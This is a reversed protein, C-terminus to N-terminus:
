RSTEETYLKAVAAVDDDGFGKGSAAQLQELAAAGVPTDLAWTQAADIALGVDKAALDIGFRAKWDRELMWPLRVDSQFSVAGTDALAETFLDAPIGAQQALALGEALVAVNSMGIFNSVLKFTTAGEVDDFLYTKEGIRDLVGSLESIATDDGGVFLPIQGNEAHIPTKGLSCAVFRLGHEACTTAANRATHPDITSIDMIIRGQPLLQALHEVTEIVLATTPLSTVVADAEGVATELSDAHGAGAEVCRAIANQDIDFVTTPFGGAALRRAVAGGMNGVGICTINM